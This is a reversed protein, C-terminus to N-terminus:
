LKIHEEEFTKQVAPRKKMEAFFAAIAPWQNIDFKFNKIWLCTVCLYVDPLTLHNGLLYPRKMHQNVYEFKKQLIPIFLQEKLEEPVKPNFLPGFGKHLETAVYNLWELVRYHQFDTNPPFLQTAKQSEALYQLIIANETLTQNDNTILVPVSGKPNIKYFDNGTETVHTKLDVAEYECPINLENILIHPAFSCAGRSYYLKM